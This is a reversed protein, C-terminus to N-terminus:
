QVIYEPSPHSKKRGHQLDADPTVSHLQMQSKAGAKLRAKEFV